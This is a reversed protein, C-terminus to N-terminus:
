VLHIEMLCTCTFLFFFLFINNVALRGHLYFYIPRKGTMIQSQSYNNARRNRKENHVFLNAKPHFYIQIPPQTTQTHM